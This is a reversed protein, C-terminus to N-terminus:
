CNLVFVIKQLISMFKGSKRRNFAIYFLIRKCNQAHCFRSAAANFNHFNEIRYQYEIFVYKHVCKNNKHNHAFFSLCIETSYNQLTTRSTKSTVTILYRLSLYIDIWIQNTHKWIRVIGYIFIPLRNWMWLVQRCFQM